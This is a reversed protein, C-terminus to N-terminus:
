GIPWARVLLQQLQPAARPSLICSRMSYSSPGVEWYCCLMLNLQLSVVVGFKSVTVCAKARDITAAKWDPSLLLTSAFRGIVAAVRSFADQLLEACQCGPMM